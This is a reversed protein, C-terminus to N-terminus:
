ARHQPAGAGPPVPAGFDGTLFSIDTIDSFTDNNIDAPCAHDALNDACGDLRDTGIVDEANDSWTDGDTDLPGSCDEMHAGDFLQSETLNITTTGTGTFVVASSGPPNPTGDDLDMLM